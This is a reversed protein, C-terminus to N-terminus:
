KIIGIKERDLAIAIAIILMLGRAINNWSPPVGAITLGNALIVLSTAGVATKAISGYGGSLPTGGLVVASIVDLEIGEGTVPTAAGVRGLNLISGLGVIFGAFSFILVKYRSVSVGFLGVVNENGGIAKINRGFVAKNYILWAIGLIFIALIFIEPFRGIRTLWEAQLGATKLGEVIYIARGGSILHIVARIIVMTALTTIFSPIKLYSFIVGNLFGVFVSVVLGLILGAPGFAQLGLAAIYVSLGVSSGISLDIFGGTIIFTEAIALIILVPSQQAIMKLNTISLFRPGAWIRFSIILIILAIYALNNKIYFNYNKSNFAQERVKKLSKRFYRKRM